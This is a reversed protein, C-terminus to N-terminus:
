LEKKDEASETIITNDEMVYGRSEVWGRGKDAACCLLDPLLLMSEQRMGTGM